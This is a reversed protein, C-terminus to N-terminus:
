LDIHSVANALSLDESNDIDIAEKASVNHFYPIEGIRCNTKQYAEKKIAYFGTTEQIVPISDQSRPLSGPSYNVPSGDYWYWTQRSHSLLGSDYDDSKIKYLCSLISSPKQFPCTIYMQCFVDYNPFKEVHYKLLDNGSASDESLRKKRDIVSITKKYNAEIWDKIIDSDTDVYIDLSEVIEKNVNKKIYEATKFTHEYLPIGGVFSFNKSEVRTSRKKIPIFIATKM